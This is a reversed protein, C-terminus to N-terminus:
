LGIRRGASSNSRSRPWRVFRKPCPWSTPRSVRKGCMRGARPTSSKWFVAGASGAYIEVRVTVGNRTVSHSLPSHFHDPEAADGGDNKDHAGIDDSRAAAFKRSMVTAISELRQSRARRCSQVAKNIQEDAAITMKQLKRM